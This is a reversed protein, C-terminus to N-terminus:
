AGPFKTVNTDDDEATDNEDSGDDEDDGPHGDDDIGDDDGEGEMEDALSSLSPEFGANSAAAPHPKHSGGSTAKGTDSYKIACLRTWCALQGPYLLKVIHAKFDEMTTLWFADEPIKVHAAIGKDWIQQALDEIDFGELEGADNILPDIPLEVNLHYSARESNTQGWNAEFFEGPSSANAVPPEGTVREVFDPTVFATRVRLAAVLTDESTGLGAIKLSFVTNGKLAIAIYDYAGGTGIVMLPLKSM